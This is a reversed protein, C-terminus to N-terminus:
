VRVAVLAAPDTLAFTVTVTVAGSGTMPLKVEDADDMVAPWGMASEQATVPAVEVRMEFTVAAGMEGMVKYGAALVVYVRVAVLTLPETVALTETPTLGPVANFVPPLM